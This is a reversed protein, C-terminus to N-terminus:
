ARAKAAQQRRQLAAALRPESEPGRILAKAFVALYSQDIISGASRIEPELLYHLKVLNYCPVRPYLHHAAHYSRFLM